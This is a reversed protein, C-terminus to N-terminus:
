ELTILTALLYCSTGVHEGEMLHVRIRQGDVESEVEGRTGLDVLIMKSRSVMSALALKDSHGMASVFLQWDDAHLVCGATSVTRVRQNLAFGNVETPRLEVFGLLLFACLLCSLGIVCLRQSTKALM